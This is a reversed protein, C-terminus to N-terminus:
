YWTVFYICTCVKFFRVFRVISKPCEKRQTVFKLINQEIYIDEEVTYSRGQIVAASKKYLEQNTVKIVAQKPSKDEAKWISGLYQNSLM